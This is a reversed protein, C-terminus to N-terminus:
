VGMTFEGWFNPQLCYEDVWGEYEWGGRHSCHRHM